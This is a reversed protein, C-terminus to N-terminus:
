RKVEEWWLDILRWPYGENAAPPILQIIAHMIYEGETDRVRVVLKYTRDNSNITKIELVEKVGEVLEEKAIRFLLRRKWDQKQKHGRSKM